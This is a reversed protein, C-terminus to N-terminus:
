QAPIILTFLFGILLPPIIVSGIAALTFRTSSGREIHMYRAGKWEIVAVYFLLFYIWPVDPVCNDIIKIVAMLGIICAVFTHVNFDNTEGGVTIDPLTLSLGFIGIFYGAFYMIFTVIMRIVATGMGVDPMHFPELLQTLAAIAIVPYLGRTLLRHPEVGDASVDEWGKTPALFLQLLTKLYHLM